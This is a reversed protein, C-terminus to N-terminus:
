RAWFRSGAQLDETDRHVHVSIMLGIGLMVTLMATGGYSILPLPIGVVPMLGMVMAINIFVYIFLVVSIGLSLVRGFHNRSRLAIVIGFAIIIGYLAILLLGGAMGFEEALMAFIFDTHIEPLFRLQSQSGQLFGKGDFGGAGLAIKSQLIHYGAGLADHEPDVFSLIRQQKYPRLLSWVVPVAAGAVAVLVGFVRFRVGVGLFVALGILLLFIATGLDPQRLVLATPVAILVGPILLNSVRLIQEAPLRHFYRALVLVLGIKMLESPQVRFFVLDIWRRAGMGSAGVVEVAILLLLLAAYILYAYRWWIRIDIVAVLLLIALCVGFRILHPKAWPTWSGRAASYLMVTGIAAVACVVLVLGWNVRIFKGASVGGEFPLVSERRM